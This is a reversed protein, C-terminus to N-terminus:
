RVYSGPKFNDTRAASSTRSTPVCTSSPLSRVHPRSPRRGPRRPQRRRQTRNASRATAAAWVACRTAVGTRRVAASFDASVSLWAASRAATTSASVASRRASLASSRPPWAATAARWRSASAESASATATRGLFRRRTRRTRIRPAMAPPTTAATLDGSRVLSASRSNPRRGLEVVLGRLRDRQGWRLHRRCGIRGSGDERRAQRPRRRRRPHVRHHRSRDAVFPSPALLQGRSGPRAGATEPRARQGLACRVGPAAMPGRHVHARPGDRNAAGRGNTRGGVRPPSM